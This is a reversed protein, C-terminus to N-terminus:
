MFDYKVGKTLLRKIEPARVLCAQRGEVSLEPLPLSTCCSDPVLACVCCPLAATNPPNPQWQGVPAVSGQGVRLQAGDVAGRM